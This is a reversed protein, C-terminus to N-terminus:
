DFIFSSHHGRRNPLKDTYNPKLRLEYWNELEECENKNSKLDENFGQKMLDIKINEPGQSKKIEKNENEQKDESVSDSQSRSSSSESSSKPM